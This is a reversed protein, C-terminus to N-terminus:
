QDDENRKLQSPWQLKKHFVIKFHRILEKRFYDLSLNSIFIRGDKKIADVLDDIDEVDTEKDVDEMSVSQVNTGHGM